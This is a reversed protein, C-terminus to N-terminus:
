YTISGSVSEKEYVMGSVTAQPMWGGCKPRLYEFCLTHPRYKHVEVCTGRVQVACNYLETYRKSRSTHMHSFHLDAFSLCM